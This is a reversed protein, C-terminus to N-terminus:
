DNVTAPRMSKPLEACREAEASENDDIREVSPQEWTGSLCYSARGIGKLPEKFVRTFILLAAGVGAGGLLGGVTPLINSPEPAVVFQQRYDRDRLGTRGIVGIEAAPGAFKLDNTYANGDIITFNGGIEDFAFGQEFVDRFDLLLRRPLSVISMLGVVRGAGPNVERLTGTDVSLSVDGNLHDLWAATPASDWWVNASVTAAEGDIAPDLGLEALAAAVDSSTIEADITTRTGQARKRWDGTIQMQYNPTASKFETLALGGPVREVTASVSGLQRNGFGFEESVFRIGPLNQPDIGALGGDGGPALYVRQMNAVVPDDAQISRPVTIQGAIAESGIDIQWADPGREVRLSTAGLQQGYAHLDAIDVDAGLFVPGARGIGTAGALRLWPDLEVKGIRGAVLLGQQVPLRPEEGGFAVAGRSFEFTDNDIDFGLAFRRTAGLNGTVDLHEGSLFRFDLALNTPEDPAKALPEPLRLAIGALNSQVTIRTPTTALPDVAPLMLRGRWLAQGEAFDPTGLGFSEALSGISTEGDVALEARYGPEASPTLAVMVPGGLFVANLGSGTVRDKTAALTGNIESIAPALGRVSLSGDQIALTADINFASLDKLPLDLQADITGSGDGVEIREFGPGLRRSILSVSRLYAAVNQLAGQSIFKLQLTPRRMDAISLTLNETRNGLAEGSGGAFFGANKFEIWGDISEGIPWDRMYNLTADEVDAAVRFQGDGADFPFSRIPGFFTLEVNRGTGGTVARDLWDVVAGPMIETPLYRKAEVLGVDALEAELDLTPSSGDSPVKLDFSARAERGLLGVGLDVSLVQVLNHGQRWVVAGTLSDLDVSHAFLLPWDFTFAGTGFEITGSDESAQVRGSVGDIGPTPGVQRLAVRDFSADLDYDFSADSRRISFDLDHVDGRPQFLSWQEALQTEPFAGIIPALDELRIFDAALSMARMGAADSEFTFAASGSPEWSSGNRSVSINHLNLEWGSEARQWEAALDVSDFVAGDRSGIQLDDLDVDLGASALGSGTWELEADVAGRGRVPWPPDIPMLAALAELDVAQADAGLVVDAEGNGAAALQADLRLEVSSALDDEPRLTARGSYNGDTSEIVLDVDGFRWSRGRVADVYTLEGDRIAVEVSQPIWEGLSGSGPTLAFDGLRVTGGQDREIALRAGDLTLRSIDIRRSIALAVPDLTIRVERAQLFEEGSGISAGRLTLEPGKLGLRADLEAFDVALGLEDAVWERFETQYEPIQAVLLRFLGLAVALLIAIGGLAAFVIKTLRRLPHIRTQRTSM